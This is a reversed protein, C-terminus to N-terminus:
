LPQYKKPLFIEALMCRVSGGGHTEITDIGATAITGCASLADRQAPDLSEFARRSLAIVSGAAGRLEILNGAFAHLQALSLEIVTRNSKELRRLVRYRQEIKPIAALCVAAFREGLALMVNTHYIPFGNRDKAEFVVISYDLRRAFERLARTHTRPSLCAYGVRNMRDLVLSGTGELFAGENELKTLDIIRDIRYGDGRQQLEDLIDVRREPRRNWAMMPYLVATGDAHTSVWNNPYVEDPLISTTRGPFVRVDVGHRALTAALGDFEAVAAPATQAADADGTQFRNSPRTAENRSFAAPRIMMVAAATQPEPAGNV